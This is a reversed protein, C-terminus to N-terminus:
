KAIEAPVGIGVHGTVALVRVIEIDCVNGLDGQFRILGNMLALVDVVKNYVDLRLLVGSIIGDVTFAALLILYLQSCLFRSYIM